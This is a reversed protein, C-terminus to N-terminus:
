FARLAPAQMIDWMLSTAAATKETRMTPHALEVAVVGLAVGVAVAVVETAVSVPAVAVAAVVLAVSAHV